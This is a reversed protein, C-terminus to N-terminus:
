NGDIPTLAACIAAAEAAGVIPEPQEASIGLLPLAEPLRRRALCEARSSKAIVAGSRLLLAASDLRQTLMAAELPTVEYASSGFVGLRVHGVADVSAGAAMMELALAPNGGAIAESINQFRPAAITGPRATEIMLYLVVFVVGFLPLRLLSRIGIVRHFGDATM